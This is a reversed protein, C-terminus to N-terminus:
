LLQQKLLAGGAAAETANSVDAFYDANSLAASTEADAAIIDAGPDQWRGVSGKRISHSAWLLWVDM